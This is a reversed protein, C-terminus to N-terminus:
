PDTSRGRLRGLAWGLLASVAVTLTIRALVGATQTPPELEPTREQAAPEPCTEDTLAERIADSQNQLSGWLIGIAAILFSGGTILISAVIVRSALSSAEVNEVGLILLLAAYVARGMGMVWDMPGADLAVPQPFGDLRAAGWALASTSALFFFFLSGVFSAARDLVRTMPNTIGTRYGIYDAQMGGMTLQGISSAVASALQVLLLSVVCALGVGREVASLREGFWFRSSQAILLAAGVPTLVYISLALRALGEIGVKWRSRGSQTPKIVKTWFGFTYVGFPRFGGGLQERIRFHESLDARTAVPLKRLRTSFEDSKMWEFAACRILVYTKVWAMLAVVGLMFM